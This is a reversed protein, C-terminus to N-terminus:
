NNVWAATIYRLQDIWRYELRVQRGAVFAERLLTILEWEALRDAAQSLPVLFFDPDDALWVLFQDKEAPLTGSLNSSERIRLQVRVVARYPDTRHAIPITRAVPQSQWHVTHIAGTIPAEFIRGATPLYNGARLDYVGWPDIMHWFPDIVTGQWSFGCAQVAVAFHLHVPVQTPDTRALFQGRRVPDNVKLSLTARDIHRYVTLFRPAVAEPHAVVVCDGQIRYVVGPAAACIDFVGGSVTNFDTGAHFADEAANPRIFGGGKPGLKLDEDYFPLSLLLQDGDLPDDLFRRLGDGIPLPNPRNLDSGAATCAFPQLAPVAVEGPGAVNFRRYDQRPVLDMGVPLLDAPVDGLAHALLHLNIHIPQGGFSALRRWLFGASGDPPNAVFYRAM